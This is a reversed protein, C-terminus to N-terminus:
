SDSEGSLEDLMSQWLVLESARIDAAAKDVAARVGESWEEANDAAMVHTSTVFELVVRVVNPLADDLHKELKARYDELQKDTADPWLVVDPGNPILVTLDPTLELHCPHLRAKDVDDWSAMEVAGFMHNEGGARNTFIQGACRVVKFLESGLQVFDGENPFRNGREVIITEINM